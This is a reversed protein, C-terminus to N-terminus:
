NAHLKEKLQKKAYFKIGIPLGGLKKEILKLVKEQELGGLGCGLPPIAISTIGWSKYITKFTELGAEIYQYESPNRWDNKTPFNIIKHDTANYLHLCGPYFSKNACIKQYEEFMEPYKNKFQLALGKGMVGVCNVANVITQCKSNFIDGHVVTIMENGEKM